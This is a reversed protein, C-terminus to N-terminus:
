CTELLLKQNRVLTVQSTKKKRMPQSTQVGHQNAHKRWKAGTRGWNQDRERRAPRQSVVLKRHPTVALAEETQPNLRASNPRGHLHATTSGRATRDASCRRQRVQLRNARFSLCLRQETGSFQTLQTEIVCVCLVPASHSTPDILQM